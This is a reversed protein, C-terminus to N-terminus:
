GLAVPEACSFTVNGIIRQTTKPPSQICFGNGELDRMVTLIESLKRVQHSKTEVLKGGLQLIRDLEAERDPVNVDLHIPLELTPSKERKDFFLEPGEGRAHCADRDLEIEYGDLISAWFEALRQPDACAFTIHNLSLMVAAPTQRNRGPLRRPLPRHRPGRDLAFSPRTRIRRTGSRG